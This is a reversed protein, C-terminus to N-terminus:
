GKTPKGRRMAIFGLSSITLLCLTTPEPAPVSVWSPSRVAFAERNGNHTGYGVITTGDNSIATASSLVSWGTLDVGSALLSDRLNVMGNNPTWLFAEDGLATSGRGVVTNGDGSIGNAESFFSGGLLDGLGIMGTPTWRFAENGSSSGSRGVIANGDNSTASAYSYISGGALDGLGVMGSSAWRFAEQGSSSTGYGVIINGDNSVASASSRFIGGPLDGLGAMGSSTWRFAENNAGANNSSSNGVVVNGNGSVGTAVSSSFLISGGGPLYGLNVMGTGSVWRFANQRGASDGLGVVVSGDSSVGNAISQFFGGPFDGLGIMGSSNWRFAESPGNSSRAGGVVFNGNNSIGISQSDLSSGTLDGLATFTIQASAKSISLLSLLLYLALYTVCKKKM